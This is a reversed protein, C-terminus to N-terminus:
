FGIDPSQGDSLADALEGRQNTGGGLGGLETESNAQGRGLIEGNVEVMVAAKEPLTEPLVESLVKKGRGKKKDTGLGKQTPTSESRKGTDDNGEQKPTLLITCEIARDIAGLFFSYLQPAVRQIPHQPSHSLTRQGSQHIGYVMSFSDGGKIGTKPLDVVQGTTKKGRISYPTVSINPDDNLLIRYDYQSSDNGTQEIVFTLSVQYSRQGKVIQPAADTLRKVTKSNGDPDKPQAIHEYGSLFLQRYAARANKVKRMQKTM